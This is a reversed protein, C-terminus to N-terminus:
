FDPCKKQFKSFPCPLDGGGEGGRTFRYNLLATMYILFASIFSQKPTEFTDQFNQM